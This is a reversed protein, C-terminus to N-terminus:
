PKKLTKQQFAAAQAKQAQHIQEIRGYCYVTSLILALGYTFWNLVFLKTQLSAEKFETIWKLMLCGPLDEDYPSTFFHAIM